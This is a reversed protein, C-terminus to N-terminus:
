DDKREMFLEDLMANVQGSEFHGLRIARAPCESVCIGCGMCAAAPIEAKHDLNVRPAGFPCVHVCTMCSVCRSQDVRSKQADLELFPRSLVTAARSAAAKAQAITEDVM